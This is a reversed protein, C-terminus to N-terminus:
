MSKQASFKKLLPYRNYRYAELHDYLKEYETFLGDESINLDFGEEYAICRFIFKNIKYTLDWKQDIIWQLKELSDEDGKEKLSKIIDETRNVYNLGKECYAQKAQEGNALLSLIQYCDALGIYKYIEDMVDFDPSSVHELRKVLRETRKVIDRQTTEKERVYFDLFRENINQDLEDYISVELAQRANSLDEQKLEQYKLGVIVLGVTLAAVLGLLAWRQRRLKKEKQPNDILDAIRLASANISNRQTRREEHTGTGSIEANEVESLRAQLLLALNKVHEADSHEDAYRILLSIAKSTQNAAILQQVETKM